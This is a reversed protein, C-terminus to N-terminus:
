EDIAELELRLMGMDTVSAAIYFDRFFGGDSVRIKAGKEPIKGGLDSQALHMTYSVIYLGQGHDSQLTRRDKERLGSLVVPINSYAVGDYTVTRNEAFETNNLFVKKIDAAVADKFSM